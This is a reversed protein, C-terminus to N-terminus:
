PDTKEETPTAPKPFAPPVFLKYDAPLIADILNLTLAEEALIPYDLNDGRELLLAVKEPTIGTKKVFMEKLQKNQKNTVEDLLKMREWWHEDHKYNTIGDSTPQSSHMLVSGSPVILRRHCYQLVTLAASNAEMALGIVPAKTMQILDGLQLSMYTSGGKSDFFITIPEESEASMKLLADRVAVYLDGDLKGMFPIMRKPLICNILDKREM